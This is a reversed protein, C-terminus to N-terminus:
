TRNLTQRKYHDYFKAYSNFTSGCNACAVFREGTHTRLHDIMKLRKTFQKDCNLWQCRVSQNRNQDRHTEIEHVCHARIHSFFDQILEFSFTCEHWMCIYKNETDPISNRRRSDIMCAPLPEKKLLLQEGLTKLNTM